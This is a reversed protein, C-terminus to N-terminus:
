APIKTVRSFRGHRGCKPCDLETGFRLAMLHDLCAEDTAFRSFFDQVTFSKAM